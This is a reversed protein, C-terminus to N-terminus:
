GWDSDMQQLIQASTKQGTLLGQIGSGLDDNVKGNAWELPPFSRTDGGTVVPAVAQYTSPMASANKTGVPFGVGTSIIKQGAPSAVYALFETVLKPSKTKASAAIAQDSSVSAYTKLGAPAPFPLVQLKVHGGSAAEISAAAGGPAFFGFLKGSSSGNTLADFGAGAAGPQFCGKAYLTKIADLAQIWGKTTAFKVKGATRQTNWDPTPGYVTSTAIEHALIAPNAPIAGALGFLSKGKAKATSCASLVDDFTSTGTLTIGNKKADVDNYIIGNVGSGRSVAYTKGEYQFQSLGAPKLASDISPDHLPLLLGAKAFPQISNTQGIGSEAQFADPANGGQVRTAIAQAYSEAPLKQLKITVGKHAKMFAEAVQRAATDKANSESFAFSFSQPEKAASGGGSGGGGNSCAALSVGVAAVAAIAAVRRVRRTTLQSM